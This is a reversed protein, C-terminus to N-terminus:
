HFPLSGRRSGGIKPSDIKPTPSSHVGPETVSFIGKKWKTIDMAKKQLKPDIADETKSKDVSIAGISNPSNNIRPSQASSKNTRPDFSKIVLEALKVVLKIASQIITLLLPKSAQKKAVIKDESVSKAAPMEHIQKKEAEALQKTRRVIYDALSCTVPKKDEDNRVWTVKSYSSPNKGKLYKKDQEYLDQILNMNTPRKNKFAQDVENQVKLINAVSAAEEMNKEIFQSTASQFHTIVADFSLEDPNEISKGVRACITQLSARLEKEPVGNKRLSDIVKTANQIAARINDIDKPNTVARMAEAFDPDSVVGRYSRRFKNTSGTPFGNVTPRNLADLIGGGDPLHGGGPGFNKILDNFAHGYDIGAIHERGDKDKVVLSNGPNNDHDGLMMRRIIEAYMERKFEGGVRLINPEKLDVKLGEGGGAIIIAHSKLKLTSSYKPISPNQEDLMKRHVEDISGQCGTIYRSVLGVGGKGDVFFSVDPAAPYGSGKGSLAYAIESAVAEAITDGINPDLGVRKRTANNSNSLKVRARIDKGNEKFKRTMSLSKGEGEGAEKKIDLLLAKKDKLGFAENLIILSM